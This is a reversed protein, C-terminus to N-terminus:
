TLSRSDAIEFEHVEAGVIMAQQADPPGEGRFRTVAEASTWREFINIRDPELLDAALHFDLCGEADRAARMVAPCGALYADRQDPAVRLLGAVVIVPRHHWV